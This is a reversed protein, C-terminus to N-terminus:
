SARYLYNSHEMIESLHFVKVMAWALDNGHITNPQRIIPGGGQARVLSWIFFFMSATPVVIAKVTFLHRIHHVHPYIAPLSILWFIFFSVFQYTEIGSGALTNPIKPYFPWIASIM